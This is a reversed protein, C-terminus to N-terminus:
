RPFAASTLDARIEFLDNTVKSLAMEPEWPAGSDMLFERARITDVTAAALMEYLRENQNHTLSTSLEDIFSEQANPLHNM